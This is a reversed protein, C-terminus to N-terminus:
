QNSVSLLVRILEEQAASLHTGKKYVVSIQFAPQNNGLLPRTILHDEPTIALRALFSIGVHEGVMKKLLGVDSSRYVVQPSAASQREFWEFAKAHVFGEALLIFKENGLQNFSLEPQQTLPHDPPLVISFPSQTVPFVELGEEVLPGSSGLLAIDLHGTRIEQLLDASGAEKTDLRDMLGTRVLESAMQPFYYNGIIPPLGFRIATGTVEQAALVLEQNIVQAHRYLQEGAPTLQLEQHSQDRLMLQVNFHTELRKLAMTITPQTVGFERAVQSFNKSEALQAFYQLDRTNM